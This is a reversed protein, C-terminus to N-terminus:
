DGERHQAVASFNTGEKHGLVAIEPVRAPNDPESTERAQAIVVLM